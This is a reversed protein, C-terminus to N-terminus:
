HTLVYAIVTTTNFTVHAVISPGLRGSRWALIGLVVGFGTLGIFQLPEFHVLGFLIGTGLISVVPCLRPGLHKLRGLLGRLLVGRFFLEEVVPSGLCVLLAIAVIEGTGSSTAPGLLQRAPHGLRQTLHPVFPQLPYELVPVLVYQSAIGVAIGLPLDPWPKLRLGYDSVVSGTGRFQLGQEGPTASPMRLRTGVVAAGVFGTWLSVLSVVDQGFTGATAPTHSLADYISEAIVSLLLGVALGLLAEVIGFPNGETRKGLVRDTLTDPM